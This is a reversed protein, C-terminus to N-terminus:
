FIGVFFHVKKNLLFCGGDTLNRKKEEERM